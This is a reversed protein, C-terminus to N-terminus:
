EMSCALKLHLKMMVSGETTGSINITRSRVRFACLWQHIGLIYILMHISNYNLRLSVCKECWVTIRGCIGCSGCGKVVFIPDCIAM